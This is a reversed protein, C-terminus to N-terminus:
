REVKGWEPLILCDSDPPYIEFARECSLLAEHVGLLITYDLECFFLELSATCCSAIPVSTLNTVSELSCSCKRFVVGLIQFLTRASPRDIGIQMGLMEFENGFSCLLEICINIRDIATGRISAKVVGHPIIVKLLFPDIEAVLVLRTQWFRMRGLFSLRGPINGFVVLLLLEFLWDRLLWRGRPPGM